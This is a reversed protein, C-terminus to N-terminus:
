CADIQGLPNPSFVGRLNDENFADTLTLTLGNEEFVAKTSM